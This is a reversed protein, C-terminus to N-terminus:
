FISVFDELSQLATCAARDYFRYWNAGHVRANDPIHDNEHVCMAHKPGQSAKAPPTAPTSPTTGGGPNGNDTGPENVAVSSNTARPRFTYAAFAAGVIVAILVAVATKRRIMNRREKEGERTTDRLDRHRPSLITKGTGASRDGKGDRRARMGKRVSTAPRGRMTSLGKRTPRCSKVVDRARARPADRFRREVCATRQCLVGHQIM